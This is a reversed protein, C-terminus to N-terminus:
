HFMICDLRISMLLLIDIFLIKAMEKSVFLYNNKYIPESIGLWQKHYKMRMEAVIMQM